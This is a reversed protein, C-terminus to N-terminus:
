FAHGKQLYPSHCLPSHSPTDHGHWPALLHALGIKGGPRELEGFEM